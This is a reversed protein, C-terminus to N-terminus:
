KGSSAKDGETVPQEVPRSAKVDEVGQVPVRKLSFDGSSHDKKFIWVRGTDTDLM